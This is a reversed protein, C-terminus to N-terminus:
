EAVPSTQRKVTVRGWLMGDTSEDIRATVTTRNDVVFIPAKTAAVRPPRHMLQIAFTRRETSM